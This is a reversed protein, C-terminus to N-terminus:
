SDRPSPSTYLLCDVAEDLSGFAAGAAVARCAVVDRHDVEGDALEVEVDGVRLLSSGAFPALLAPDALLVDLAALDSPLERM